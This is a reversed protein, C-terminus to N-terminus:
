FVKWGTQMLETDTQTEEVEPIPGKKKKVYPRPRRRNSKIRSPNHFSEPRVVVENSGNLHFDPVGVQLTRLKQEAAEIKRKLDYKRADM